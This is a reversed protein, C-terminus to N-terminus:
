AERQQRDGVWDFHFFKGLPQDLREYAHADFDDRQAQLLNAPLQESRSSDLYSAAFARIPIGALAAKSVITRWNQQTRELIDKFCPDRLLNALASNKDLGEKIRQWVTRPHHM